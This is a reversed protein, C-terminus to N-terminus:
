HVFHFHVRHVSLKTREPVRTKWVSHVQHLFIRREVNCSGLRPHPIEIIETNTFQHRDHKVTNICKIHTASEHKARQMYTVTATTEFTECLKIFTKLM